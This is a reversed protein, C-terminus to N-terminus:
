RSDRNYLCTFHSVHLQQHSATVWISHQEEESESHWGNQDEGRKSEISLSHPHPNGEAVPWLRRLTHLLPLVASDFLRVPPHEQEQRLGGGEVESCESLFLYVTLQLYQVTTFSPPLLNDRHIGTTNARFDGAMFIMNHTMLYLPFENLTSTAKSIDPKVLEQCSCFSNSCYDM